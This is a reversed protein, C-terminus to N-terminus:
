ANGAGEPPAGRAHAQHRTNLTPALELILRREALFASEADQYVCMLVRDGPQFGQLRHHRSSLARAAGHRSHGVYLVERGRMWLYVIPRRQRQLAEGTMVVDPAGLLRRLPGPLTRTDREREVTTVPRDLGARMGTGVRVAVHLATEADDRGAAVRGLIRSASRRVRDGGGRYAVQWRGRKLYVAGNPVSGPGMIPFRGRPTDDPTDDHDNPRQERHGPRRHGELLDDGVFAADKAALIAARPYSLRKKITSPAFGVATAQATYAELVTPTVVAVRFPGLAAALHACETRIDGLGTRGGDRGLRALYRDLIERVTARDVGNAGYAWAHRDRQTRLAAVADQPTTVAPPKGTLKAVSERHEVGGVSYTIWYGSGRSYYSGLRPVHVRRRTLAVFRQVLGTAELALIGAVTGPLQDVLEPQAAIEAPTPPVTPRM